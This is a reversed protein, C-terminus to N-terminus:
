TPSRHAALPQSAAPGVEAPDMTSIGAEGRTVLLYSVDKGQWTWRRLPGTSWTTPTLLSQWPSRGTKRAYQLEAVIKLRIQVPRHGLIRTAPWSTDRGPHVSILPTTGDRGRRSPGGPRPAVDGSGTRMVSDAMASSPTPSSASLIAPVTLRRLFQQVLDILPLNM